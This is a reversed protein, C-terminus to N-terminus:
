ASAGYRRLLPCPRRSNARKIPRKSRSRNARRQPRQAERSPGSSGGAVWGCDDSSSLKYMYDGAGYPEQQIFTFAEAIGFTQQNRLASDKNGRFRQWRMGHIQFSHQEEHSGQVVRFWLPDGEFTPFRTTYPDRNYPSRSTFWLAPDVMKMHDGPEHLREHIPDNRYNLAMVGQDGHGRTTPPNLPNDDKDWMPVFDGIGTCFERFKRPGETDEEHRM